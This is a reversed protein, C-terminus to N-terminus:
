LKFKKRNEKKESLRKKENLRKQKQLKSPKTAKRKKPVFLGQKLTTLLQQIVEEKNQHQSRSSQCSIQIIGQKNLKNALKKTLKEKEDESFAESNVLNFFVVVKSSVKNVHQGGAGSSRVAKFQLEKLLQEINM